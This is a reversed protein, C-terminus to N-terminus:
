EAGERGEALHLLLEEIEVLREVQAWAQALNAAAGHLHMEVAARFGYVLARIADRRARADDVRRPIYGARDAAAPRRTRQTQAAATQARGQYM